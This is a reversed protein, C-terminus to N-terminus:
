EEREGGKWGVLVFSPPFDHDGKSSHIKLPLVCFVGCWL